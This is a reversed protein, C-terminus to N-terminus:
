QNENTTPLGEIKRMYVWVHTLFKKCAYRLAMNKRHLETKSQHIEMSSIRDLYQQYIENYISENKYQGYVCSTMFVHIRSKLVVNYGPMQMIGVKNDKTIYIQYRYTEKRAKNVGIGNVVDYGCYRWYSSPHDAVYPNLFRLLYATMIAGMGITNKQFVHMPHSSIEKQIKVMLQKEEDMIRRWNEMLFYFTQNTILNIKNDKLYEESNFFKRITIGNEVIFDTIRGYEKKLRNLMRNNDDDGGGKKPLDPLACRVFAVIRNGQSIRLKQMDRFSNILVSVRNIADQYKPNQSKPIAENKEREIQEYILEYYQQATIDSNKKSIDKYGEEIEEPTLELVKKLEVKENEGSSSM